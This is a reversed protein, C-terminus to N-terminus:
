ARLYKDGIVSATAILAVFTGMVPGGQAFTILTAIVGIVIGVKFRRERRVERDDYASSVFLSKRPRAGGESM